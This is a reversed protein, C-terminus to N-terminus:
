QAVTASEPKKFTEASFAKSSLKVDTFQLDNRKKVPVNDEVIYWTLTEPLLIGEITHWNGYKIFSWKESKAQTKYTVTYALWEMKFTEANYYLIYEDKSSSGVGDNYSIKIGPYEIGDFILPKATEYNIGNDALVFPMTHFYFMLNYYFNPNGKYEEEAKSDLWVNSGDFGITHNQMTILSERSKLNVKTVEKGTPKTLAFELAEMRNWNDIGGHAEFVKSLAEPYNTKALESIAETEMKPKDETKKTENKCSIFFLAIGLIYLLHKM